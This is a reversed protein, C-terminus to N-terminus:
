RKVEVRVGVPPNSLERVQEITMTVAGSTEVPDSVVTTALWTLAPENRDGVVWSLNLVRCRVNTMAALMGSFLLSTELGRGLVRCSLFLDQVSYEESTTQRCLIGGIIGSDSFRDQLSLAVWVSSPSEYDSRECRALLLNFQNSRKGLDVLRELDAVHGVNIKLCPKATEYYTSVGSSILQERVQNSQIDRVRLDAAHDTSSRRYGPVLKLTTTAIEPGVDASVCTVRPFEASMQLLEVPNDDIFVVSDQNIRTQRIIRTLAETKSEWSAEIAVFDTERLMYDPHSQLLSIVDRKDNKSLIALMLGDQKARLIEAQLCKFREDVVVNIGLEGLVGSHLTFDLDIALLKKPPVIQEGLWTGALERGLLYHAAPTLRSGTTKQYRVDFFSGDPCQLSSLKKGDVLIEIQEGVLVCVVKTATLQRLHSLRLDLWDQFEDLEIQYHSVDIMVLEIDFTSAGLSDDVLSLSDDYGTYTFEYELNWYRGVVRAIPEMPECAYNRWVRVQILSAERKRPQMLFNALDLRSLQGGFIKKQLQIWDAGDLELANTFSQSVM